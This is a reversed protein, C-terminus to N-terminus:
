QVPIQDVSASTITMSKTSTADAPSLMVPVVTWTGPALVDPFTQKSKGKDWALALTFGQYTMSQLNGIRLYVRLGNEVGVVSALAVLLTGGNTRVPVYGAETLSLVATRESDARLTKVESRLSDLDKHLTGVDATLRATERASPRALLGAIAAGAVFASVLGAVILGLSRISAPPISRTETDPTAM